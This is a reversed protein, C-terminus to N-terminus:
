PRSANDRDKAARRGPSSGCRCVPAHLGRQGIQRQSWPDACNFRLARRRCLLQARESFSACGDFTGHTLLWPIVPDTSVVLIRGTANAAVFDLVAQYPIAANRKFPRSNHDIHAIAAVNAAMLLAAAVLARGIRGGQLERDLWLAVLLTVAPALYLFSRPKAFGALVMLAAPAALM